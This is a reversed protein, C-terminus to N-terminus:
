KYTITVECDKYNTTLYSTLNKYSSSSNTFSFSGSDGKFTIEITNQEKISIDDDSLSSCGDFANKGISNVSYMNVFFLNTCGSFAGGGISTIGKSVKVYRITTNDKFADDAIATIKVGNIASPIVLDSVNSDLLGTIIGDQTYSFISPDDEDSDTGWKAYLNYIGYAGNSIESIQNEFTSETYWGKFVYGEKTPNELTITKEDVIYTDPNASNNIGGNLNYNIVYSDYIFTVKTYNDVLYDALSDKISSYECTFRDGNSYDILVKIPAPMSTSFSIRTLKSCGSFANEGITDMSYILVRSLNTCGSFANNGISLVGENIIVMSITTNNKFADDAIATIKIGYIESPIEPRTETLDSLGTIVGDRTYTFTEHPILESFSEWKAYLNIEGYTGKAIETIENSFLSDTYWGGFTFGDKTPTKLIITETEITYDTINESNNTGGDLNYNIAYNVLNYKAYLTTDETVVSSFNWENTFSEEKYWAYFTYGNKIPATPMEVQGNFKVIKPEIATGGMSNFTVTYLIEEWKAYVIINSYSGKPIQTIVNTFLGDTYWGGFVYGERTPEKLTITETSVTYYEPNSINNIGGSLNYTINYSIFNFKAYLTIDKTVVTSFDWENIYNEETYWSIFTYGIKTPSTPQMATKNYKVTQTEVESGGMTNFTVIYSVEEWKAYLIIDGMTGKEINTIQNNFENDIYWGKFTYNEKTPEQLTITDVEITYINPNASNNIGDDLNYTITYTELEWKAYLTRNGTTGQEIETIQNNFESDTYWGKFIYGAKTPNQLTISDKITFIKHNGAHNIGGDLEYTIEYNILTYNATITIDETIPTNFDFNWGTFNYGEKVPDQPKTVFNGEEISQTEIVTGGFTNFTVLYSQNQRRVQLAYISSNGYTDSVKVYFTNYGQVLAILVDDIPQTAEADSYM